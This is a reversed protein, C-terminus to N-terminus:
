VQDTKAILAVGQRYGLGGNGHVMGLQQEGDLLAHHISVLANLAPNNWAARALNMGGTVTISHQKLFNPIQELTDVLGSALLFAMPVVPYCTYAELLADGTKFREAFNIEAQQCCQQYADRLHDYRAITEIQQPGDEALRSLGVAKIELLSDVPCSLQQAVTDSVILLRGKFDVMPNACDVGRFLSTIPQHWRENPILAPSFDDSLANRYSLSYNDFLAHALERFHVEDINHNRLFQHALETYAETLPQEDGYVAMQQLRQHRAYGTKIDDEGCILVAPLGQEILQKARALAEIPACGSRFHDAQEASHWDTRLPDIHLARIPLGLAEIRQELDLCHSMSGINDLTKAASIILARNM